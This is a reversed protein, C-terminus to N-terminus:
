RVPWQLAPHPDPCLPVRKCIYAIVTMDSPSGAPPPPQGPTSPAALIANFAMATLRVQPQPVPAAPRALAFTAARPAALAAATARHDRVLPRALGRVLRHDRVQGAGRPVPPPAVRAGQRHGRVAARAAGRVTVGGPATLIVRAPRSPPAPPATGPRQRREVTLNRAFVLASIYAPCRGNSAEVGDSLLEATAPLRWVRSKFLAPRFWPRTVAVSRYEFSIREINEDQHGSGLMERLEAPAEAALRIMEERTLTFRPWGAGEFFDYPSFGTIAYNINATDTQTDIDAIFSEKWEDWVLAPARAAAAQEIQMAEEIQAKLGTTLWEDEVRTIDRRLQPEEDTRWRAQAVADASAEATLQGNRYNELAKIHADRHQKYLRLAASDSRLGDATTTYLQRLAQEYREREVPTMDGAAVEAMELVDRYVDWLYESEEQPAITGRPIANTMRAFESLESLMQPTMEGPRGFTLEEPNYSKASFVPFSLFTDDSEFVRKAKTMLALQTFADM